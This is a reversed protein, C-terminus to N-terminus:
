GLVTGGLLNFDVWFGNWFGIPVYIIGVGCSLSVGLFDGLGSGSGVWLDVFNLRM